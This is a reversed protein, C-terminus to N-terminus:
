LLNCSGAGICFCIISKCCVNLQVRQTVVDLGSVQASCYLVRQDAAAQPVYGLTWLHIEYKIRRLGRGNGPLLTQKATTEFRNTIDSNGLRVTLQPPPYGGASTCNLSVPVGEIVDVSSKQTINNIIFVVSEVPEAVYNIVNTVHPYWM